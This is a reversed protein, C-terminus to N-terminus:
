GNPCHRAQQYRGDAYVVSADPTHGGRDFMSADGQQVVGLNTWSAGRDSSRYLVCRSPPKLYGKGYDGIFVFWNGSILDDFFFGNVPWEFPPTGRHIPNGPLRQFSDFSPDGYVSHRLWADAHRSEAYDITTADVTTAAALVALLRGTQAILNKASLRVGRLGSSQLNNTLAPCNEVLVKRAASARDRDRRIKTPSTPVLGPVIAHATSMIFVFQEKRDEESELGCELSTVLTAGRPARGQRLAIANQINGSANM